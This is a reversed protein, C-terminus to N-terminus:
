SAIVQDDKAPPVFYSVLFSVLTIIMATVEATITQEGTAKNIIFALLGATASAVAGVWVKRAPAASQMKAM